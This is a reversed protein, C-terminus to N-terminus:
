ERAYDPLDMLEGAFGSPHGFDLGMAKYRAIKADITADNWSKHLLCLPPDLGLNYGTTGVITGHKLSPDAHIDIEKPKWAWLSRYSPDFNHNMQPFFKDENYCYLRFVNIQPQECKELIDRAQLRLNINPWDDMDDFVLFDPDLEKAKDLVFNMHPADQNFRIGDKEEYQDFHFLHVKPNVYSKLLEISGDTSGGDSVVISNAFAYGRMFREINKEENLCRVAVVINM